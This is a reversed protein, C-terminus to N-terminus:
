APLLDGIVVDCAGFVTSMVLGGGGLVGCDGVIGFTFAGRLDGVIVWSFVDNAVPKGTVIVGGCVGDLTAALIGDGDRVGSICCWVSVGPGGVGWGFQEGRVVGGNLAKSEVLFDCLSGLNLAHIAGGSVSGM